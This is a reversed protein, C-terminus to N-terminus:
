TSRYRLFITIRHIVTTKNNLPLSSIFKIFNISKAHYIRIFVNKKLSYSFSVLHRVISFSFYLSQIHHHTMNGCVCLDRIIQAYKQVNQFKLITTYQRDLNKKLLPFLKLLFRQALLNQCNNCIIYLRLDSYNLIKINWVKYKCLLLIYVKQWQFPGNMIWSYLSMLLRFKDTKYGFNQLWAATLFKSIVTSLLQNLACIVFISLM